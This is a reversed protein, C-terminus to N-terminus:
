ENPVVWTVHEHLDLDPDTQASYQRMNHGGDNEINLIALPVHQGHYQPSGVPHNTPDLQTIVWTDLPGTAIDERGVTWTYIRPNDIDRGFDDYVSSVEGPEFLM